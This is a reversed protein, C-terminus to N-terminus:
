LKKNNRACLWGLLIILVLTTLTLNTLNFIDSEKEKIDSKEDYDIETVETILKKNNLIENSIQSNLGKRNRNQQLKHSTSHIIPTYRRYLKSKSLLTSHSYKELLQSFVENVVNRFIISKACNVFAYKFQNDNDLKSLNLNNKLKYECGEGEYKCMVPGNPKQDDFLTCVKVCDCNEPTYFYRALLTNYILRDGEKTYLPTGEGPVHSDCNQALADCKEDWNLACRQAMYQRCASSHPGNFPSSDGCNFRNDSVCCDAPDSGRSFPCMDSTYVYTEKQPTTM